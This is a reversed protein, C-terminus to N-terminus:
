EQNKIKHKALMAKKVHEEVYGDLCGNFRLVEKAASSSIFSMEASSIMWVTEVQPELHSNNRALMEELAFDSAGRIGRLMLSGGVEKVAKVTFGSASTVSVNSLDVISTQIIEIREPVTFMSQKTPNEVILILVEDFQKAARQILEMHGKTIPDFSGPYVIKM